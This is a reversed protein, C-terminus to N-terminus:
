RSTELAELAELPMPMTDAYANGQPAAWSMPETQPFLTDLRAMPQTPSDDSWDQDGDLRDLRVTTAMSPEASQTEIESDLLPLEEAPSSARLRGQSLWLAGAVAALALPAIWLLPGFAHPEM